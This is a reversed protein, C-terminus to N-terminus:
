GKLIDDLKDFTKPRNKDDNDIKSLDSKITKINPKKGKITFVQECIAWQRTDSNQWICRVLYGLEIQTKQWELPKKNPSKGQVGYIYLWDDLLTESPFYGGDVLGNFQRIAKEEEDKSYHPPKQKNEVDQMTQSNKDNMRAVNYLSRICRAVSMRTDQPMDYWSFIAHLEFRSIKGIEEIIKKDGTARAYAEINRGLDEFKNIQSIMAPPLALGKKVFTDAEKLTQEIEILANYAGNKMIVKAKSLVVIAIPAFQISLIKRSYVAVFVREM